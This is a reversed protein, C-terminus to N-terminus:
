SRKLDEVLASLNQAQRALDTVAEAAENMAQATQTSIDNVEMIARNIEESTASQEESATAIASVQDATADANMVIEELAHGSEGAYETTREIQRVANDVAAMNKNASDQIATIAKSVETTSAMTKEALKRVEDAVVAFGRGADGARAAEIAANLALLNTQDAIDSIVGMIQNIALAHENLQSMDNKLALSVQLVEKISALSRQVVDSGHGAKNKTEGSMDSASSANRAVEQVTANMENMATSAESLREAAQRSLRDSQEVRESLRSSASSLADVVNELRGAADLMGERRANEAQRRADEADAM